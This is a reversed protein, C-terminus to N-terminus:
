CNGIVCRHCTERRLCDVCTRERLWWWLAWCRWAVVMDQQCWWFGDGAVQSSWLLGWCPQCCHKLAMDACSCACMPHICRHLVDTSCRGVAMDSLDIHCHCVVFSSHKDNRNNRTLAGMIRKHIRVPIGLAVNGSLLHPQGGVKVILSQGCGM